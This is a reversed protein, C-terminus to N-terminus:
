AAALERLGANAITLKAFTWGGPSAEIEELTRRAARVPGQHAAIWATVASIDRAPDAADAPEGAFAIVRASLASQEALIDEILRRVAIREYPDAPVRVAAAERMRDFGFQGGVRHYVYATNALPWGTASALDGLDAAYTLPRMLGFSHALTKPAGLKIWKTSRRVAAKREFPSLV